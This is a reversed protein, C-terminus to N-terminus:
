ATTTHEQSCALQLQFYSYFLAFVSKTLNNLVYLICFYVQANATYVISYVTKTEQDMTMYFQIFM